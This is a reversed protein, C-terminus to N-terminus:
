PNHSKILANIEDISKQTDLTNYDQYSLRKINIMIENVGMGGRENLRQLTQSHIKQAWDENLLENPISTPADKFKSQEKYSWLIRM